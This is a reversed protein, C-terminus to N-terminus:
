VAGRRPRREYSPSLGSLRDVWEEIIQERYENLWQLMTRSEPHCPKFSNLSHESHSESCPVHGATGSWM